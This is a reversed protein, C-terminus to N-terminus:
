RGVHTLGLATASDSPDDVSPPEAAPELTASTDAM